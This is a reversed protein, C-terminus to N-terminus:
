NKSVSKFKYEIMLQLLDDVSINYISQIAGEKGSLLKAIKKGQDWKKHEETYDFFIMKNSHITGIRFDKVHSWKTFNTRFMSKVEFGDDTLKLYSANPYFQILSVVSGLGFFIIGLWAKLPEEELMLVGLVVFVASILLLM